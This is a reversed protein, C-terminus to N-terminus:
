PFPCYYNSSAFGLEIRNKTDVVGPNKGPEGGADKLQLSSEIKVAFSRKQTIDGYSWCHNKVSTKSWVRVQLQRRTGSYNAGCAIWTIWLWMKGPVRERSTENTVWRFCRFIEPRSESPEYFASISWWSNSPFWVLSVELSSLVLSSGSSGSAVAGSSEGPSTMDDYRCLIAGTVM